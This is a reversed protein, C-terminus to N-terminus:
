RGGPMSALNWAMCDTMFFLWSVYSDMNFDMCFADQVWIERFRTREYSIDRNGSRESIKCLVRCHYQRARPLIEFRNSIVIPKSRIDSIEGTGLQDLWPVSLSIYGKQQVQFGLVFNEAFRRNKLIQQGYVHPLNKAPSTSWHLPGGRFLRM